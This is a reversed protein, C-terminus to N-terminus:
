KHITSQMVLLSIICQNSGAICALLSCVFSETRRTQQLFLLKYAAKLDSWREETVNNKTM